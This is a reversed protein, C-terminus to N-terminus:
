SRPEASGPDGPVDHRAHVENPDAGVIEGLVGVGRVAHVASDGLQVDVPLRRDAPQYLHRGRLPPARVDPDSTLRGGAGREGRDQHTEPPCGTWPASCGPWLPRPAPSPKARRTGTCPWPQAPPGTPRLLVRAPPVGLERVANQTAGRSAPNLVRTTPDARGPHPGVRVPRPIPSRAPTGRRQGAAM